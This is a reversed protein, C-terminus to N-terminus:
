AIEKNLNIPIDITYSVGFTGSEFKLTGNVSHIRSEINDLGLGSKEPEYSFGIGNDEYMVNLMDEFANIHITVNRAYSHKISNSLLEQIVRFVLINLEYNLPEEGFTKLSINLPISRSLKGVYNKLGTMLGYRELGPPTLGYIIEKIEKIAVQFQGEIEETLPEFHSKLIQNVTLKIASLNTGVRDHLEKSIRNRERELTDIESQLLRQQHDNIIKLYHSRQRYISQQYRFYFFIFIILISTSTLYTYWENWWPRQISFNIPPFAAAWTVNDTSYELDFNYIGPTLSPFFLQKGTVPIWDRKHDSLRYRLIINQNNFSIFGFTIQINNENHKLEALGTNSIPKDNVRVENVYFLPNRNAFKSFSIPVVSFSNDSFAWISNNVTTLFDIKDSVLGSKKTLYEFIISDKLLERIPIKVLGKDTGLWLSNDTILSSYINNAIFRNDTNYIKFTERKRDLLIFGNGNTTILLTSDNFHLINSIKTDAFNSPISKISKDRMRLINLGMRDAMYLLSDERHISRYPVNVTDTELLKGDANYHRLRHSGFSWITGDPDLSFDNALGDHNTKLNLKEDYIQINSNTSLWIKEKHSFLSIVPGIARFESSAGAFTSDISYLNGGQDGLVAKNGISVVGRLRSSFPLQYNKILLNPVHYIGNELTSFWLGGEHDQLVNTVSKNKLFSPSWKKAFDSASYREAGGNMLGVWLNNERDLSLNIIYDDTSLVKKLTLGDYEFVERNLSLYKKSNWEVARIVRNIYGSQNLEVPFTKEDYIINLVLTNNVSSGPLVYKGVSKFFIGEPEIKKLSVQGTSDVKGIYKSCSFILEDQETIVFNFIGKYNYESLKDNFKYKIIKGNELFCLKGSFTSFWLRNRHDEFFSFVVPDTLGDKTHFSEFQVGNFKVVGNDTAFWLFGKSDQYIDYVESSPLGEPIGYNYLTFSQGRASYSCFLSAIVLILTRM